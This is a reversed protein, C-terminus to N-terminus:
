ARLTYESDSRKADDAVQVLDQLTEYDIKVNEGNHHKIRGTHRDLEPEDM